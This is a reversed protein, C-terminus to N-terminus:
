KKASPLESDYREELGKNESMVQKLAESYSLKDNAKMKADIKADVEAQATGEGAEKTGIENFLNSTPLENMLTSFATRQDKSLKEIFTALTVKSKPLFRGIKNSESYTMKDVIGSIEAKELQAFAEAGRNAKDQLISYEQATIKVMGKESAQIDGAAAAKAAAEADEAAKKDAEAKADADEKEKAERATKEEETEAVKEELGYTAKQEDTLKDANEKLVAKDDDDLVAVDL